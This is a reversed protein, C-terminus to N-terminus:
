RIPNMSGPTESQANTLDIKELATVITDQAGLKSKGKLDERVQQNVRHVDAWTQSVVVVSGDQEALAVYEGALREAQSGPECQVVAGVRDLEDFSEAVKGDAAAAVAARYAAIAKREAVDKALSPNQRRIDHIEAPEIGSFREIAIL